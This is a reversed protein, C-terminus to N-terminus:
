KDMSAALFETYQISGSKDTDISNFINEMDEDRVKAKKLGAIFEEKSIV